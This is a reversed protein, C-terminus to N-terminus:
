MFVSNIQIDTVIIHIGQMLVILHNPQTKKQILQKVPFSESFTLLSHSRQSHHNTLNIILM